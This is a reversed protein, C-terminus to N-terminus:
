SCECSNYFYQVFEDMSNNLVDIPVNQWSDGHVLYCFDNVIDDWRLSPRGRERHPVYESFSDDIMNPEWMSSTKIWSDDAVGKIRLIMKWQYRALRISWSKLPYQKLARNVRLKMRRMTVEWSEDGIRIWGAMKRLM